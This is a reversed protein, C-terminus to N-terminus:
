PIKENFNPLIELLFCTTILRACWRECTPSGIVKGATKRLQRKRVPVWDSHALDATSGPSSPDGTDHCSKKRVKAGRPWHLHLLIPASSLPLRLEIWKLDWWERVEKLLSSSISELPFGLCGRKERGSDRKKCM